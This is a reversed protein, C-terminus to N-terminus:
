KSIEALLVTSDLGFIHGSDAGKSAAGEHLGLQIQPRDVLVRAAEGLGAFRQHAARTVILFLFLAVHRVSQDVHRPEVRADHRALVVACARVVVVFALHCIHGHDRLDNGLLVQPLAVSIEEAVHTGFQDDLLRDCGGVFVLLHEDVLNDVVQPVGCQAEGGAEGLEAYLVLLVVLKNSRSDAELVELVPGLKAVEPCDLFDPPCDLGGLLRAQTTM